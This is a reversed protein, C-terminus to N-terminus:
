PSTTKGRAQPNAAAGALLLAPVVAYAAGAVALRPNGSVASSYVIVAILPVLPALIRGGVSRQALELVGPAALFFEFAFLVAAVGLAIAFRRGGYGHWSGMLAALAVIAAWVLAAVLLNLKWLRSDTIM